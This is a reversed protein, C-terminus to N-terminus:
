NSKQNQAAYASVLTAVLMAMYFVGIVAESYALVRATNSVPLIDGYGLTTLTVFSYYVWQMNWGDVASEVAGSFASPQLMYLVDYMVSWLVGLMLYVCVAGFLRNASIEIGFVVQRLANLIALKLFLFLTALSLLEYVLEGTRLAIINTVIGAVVLVVGSRFLLLNDRMSWVGIALLCIFAFSRLYTAPLLQQEAVIPLLVVFVILAFLLYVFNDKKTAM